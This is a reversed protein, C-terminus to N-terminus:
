SGTNSLATKNSGQYSGFTFKKTPNKEYLQEKTMGFVANYSSLSKRELLRDLVASAKGTQSLGVIESELKAIAADRATINTILNGIVVKKRPAGTLDYKTLDGYSIDNEITKSHQTESGGNNKVTATCVLQRPVGKESELLQRITKIDWNDKWGAPDGEQDGKLHTLSAPESRGYIPKVSVNKAYGNYNAKKRKNANSKESGLIRDATGNVAIKLGAEWDRKHDGNAQQSLPTM